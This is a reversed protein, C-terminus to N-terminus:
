EEVIIEFGEEEEKKFLARLHGGAKRGHEREYEARKRRAEAQAEKIAIGLAMKELKVHPIHLNVLLEHLSM